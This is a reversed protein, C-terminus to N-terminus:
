SIEILGWGNQEAYLRLGFLMDAHSVLNRLMQCTSTKILGDTDIYELKITEWENPDNVRRLWETQEDHRRKM